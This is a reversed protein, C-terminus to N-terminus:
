RRQEYLKVEELFRKQDVEVPESGTECLALSPKIGKNLYYKIENHIFKVTIGLPYAVSEVTFYKTTMKIM